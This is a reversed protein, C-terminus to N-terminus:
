GENRRALGKNRGAPMGDNTGDGYHISISGLAITIGIIPNIEDLGYWKLCWNDRTDTVLSLPKSQLTM